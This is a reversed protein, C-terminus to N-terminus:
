TDLHLDLPSEFTMTRRFFLADADQAQRLICQCTAGKSLSLTSESQNDLSKQVARYDRAAENHIRLWDSRSFEHPMLANM